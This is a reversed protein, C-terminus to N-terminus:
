EIVFNEGNIEKAEESALFVIKEAVEESDILQHSSRRSLREELEEKPATLWYGAKTAGPSIANVRGGFTSFLKAFSKTINVIGAKAAAYALSDYAGNVSQRSSVNIIIGSGQKQFIETTYKSMSMASILNQRLSEVWIDYDGNWEDGDIYRGANNILIDIRKFVRLTKNIVKKANRDKNLNAKIIVAKGGLKEIEKKVEKAGKKNKRYTFVINAGKQAFLIATAKGIGSSGGTLLVIKDKFEESV